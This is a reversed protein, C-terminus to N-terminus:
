SYYRDLIIRISNRYHRNTRRTVFFGVSAHEHDRIVLEPHYIITLGMACVTEALIIEEGFLFSPMDLTGGKEFYRRTFIICSGHAAYIETGDQIRRDQMREDRMRYRKGSVGKMWKKLYAFLLFCNHVLFNSYLLLYLQLRAKSFPSRKAPNYDTKWKESIISPAIIATNQDPPIRSLQQFFGPTFVIDINTVLTYAPPAHHQGFYKEMATRAAGFYGPNGGTRFYHLFPYNELQEAFGAPAHRDSNDAIIVSVNEPIGPALSELYRLTEPFTNYTVGIVLIDGKKITGEIATKERSHTM